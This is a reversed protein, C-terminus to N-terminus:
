KLVICAATGKDGVTTPTANLIQLASKSGSCGASANVQYCAGTSTATCEKIRGAKSGFVLCDAQLGKTFLDVDAPKYPLCWSLQVQTTVLDGVAKLAPSFDNTCISHFSGRKGFSDTLAKIRIAPVAFGAASQCSPKLTPFSGNLAVEVLNTPGSIASVVTNGAPKLAKFFTAYDSVKNMYANSSPKCNKRPGTKSRDNVDCTMGFEFCRFSTLPGLPDTLGQQSPDYLADKKASCDDEDTIFVVALGAEKRVFNPNTNVKPDLARRAAELPQEFGCGGVGVNAICSFADKAKQKPDGAGPINTTGNDYSIWADKPPTCGAVQAKNTLKGKDGGATECSPLNYNGAGLDTTTVGVRFDMKAQLLADMLKPFNATLNKQEQEMSNSNDVVFLVDVDSVKNKTVTMTANAMKLDAVAFRGTKSVQCMLTMKQTDHAVTKVAGLAKAGVLQVGRIWDKDNPVTDTTDAYSLTLSVPKKFTLGAPQIEVVTGALVGAPLSADAVTKLIVETSSDLAGAPIQLAVPSGEVTITGGSPGVTGKADGVPDRGDGCASLLFLACLTAMAARPRFMAANAKM